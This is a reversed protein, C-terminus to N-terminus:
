SLYSLGWLWPERVLLIGYKQQNFILNTSPFIWVEAPFQCNWALFDTKKATWDEYLQYVWHLLGDGIADCVPPFFGEGFPLNIANPKGWEEITFFRLMTM